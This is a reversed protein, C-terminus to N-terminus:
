PAWPNLVDVESGQIDAVNRTVLTLDHASATAAILGDIAPLPRGTQRARASLVAWREAVALDLAPVRGEFWETLTARLWRDLRARRVADPHLHIGRRIEGITIMSVFLSEPETAEVWEVVAAHPEPRALESIVNTDILFRGM